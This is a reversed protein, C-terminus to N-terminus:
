AGFVRLGSRGSRECGMGRQPSSPACCRTMVTRASTCTSRGVMERKPPSRRAPSSAPRAWACAPPSRRGCHPRVARESAPRRRHRAQCLERPNTTGTPDTPPNIALADGLEDYFRIGAAAVTQPRAPPCASRLHHPRRRPVPSRRSRNCTSAAQSRSCGAGRRDRGHRPLPRPPAVTTDAVDLRTVGAPLRGHWGPATIAWRGARGGTARTGIYAFSDTYASILQFSYYRDHIAPLTLVYPESRLDLPAVAYLTDANPAVITRSTVGSLMRQFTLRNAPVLAALSQLTRETVVLPYGWVYADAALQADSEPAAPRTTVPESPESRPSTPAPPRTPAATHSTCAASAGVLLLVVFVCRITVFRGATVGGAQGSPSPSRVARIGDRRRAETRLRVGLALIANGAVDVRRILLITTGDSRTGSGVVFPAQHAGNFITTSIGVTASVGGGSGRVPLLRVSVSDTSRTTTIAAATSGSIGAFGDNAFGTGVADGYGSSFVPRTLAGTVDDRCEFGETQSECMAGDALSMRGFYQFQSGLENWRPRGSVADFSVITSQGPTGLGSPFTLHRGLAAALSRANPPVGGAVFVSEGSAAAGVVTFTQGLPGALPPTSWEWVPTGSSVDLRQVLTRRTTPMSCQYSVALLPGDAVLGEDYLVM